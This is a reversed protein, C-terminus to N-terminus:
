SNTELMLLGREKGVLKTDLDPSVSKMDKLSTEAM